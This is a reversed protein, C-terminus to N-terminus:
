PHGRQRDSSLRRHRGGVVAVVQQDLHAFQHQGIVRHRAQQQSDLAAGQGGGVVVVGEAFEDALLHDASPRLHRELHQVLPVRQPPDHRHLLALVHPAIAIRQQIHAEELVGVVLDAAEHQGVLVADNALVAIVGVSVAELHEVARPHDQHVGVVVVLEGFVGGDVEQLFPSSM